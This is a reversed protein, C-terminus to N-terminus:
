YMNATRSYKVFIANVQLHLLAPSVLTEDSISLRLLISPSPRAVFGDKM